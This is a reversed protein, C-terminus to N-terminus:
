SNVNIGIKDISGLLIDAFLADFESVTIDNFIGGDNIFVEM